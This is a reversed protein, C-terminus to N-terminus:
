SSSNREFSNVFTSKPIFEPPTVEPDKSLPVISLTLHCTTELLVADPVNENTTRLPSSLLLLGM